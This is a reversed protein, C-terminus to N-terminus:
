WWRRLVRSVVDLSLADQRPFGLPDALCVIIQPLSTGVAGGSVAQVPM